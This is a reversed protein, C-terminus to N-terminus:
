HLDLGPRLPPLEPDWLGPFQPSFHCLTLLPKGVTFVMWTSYMECNLLNFISDANQSIAGSNAGADKNNNQQHFLPTPHWAAHYFLIHLVYEATRNRTCQHDLTRQKGYSTSIDWFSTAPGSILSELKLSVRIWLSNCYTCEVSTPLFVVCRTSTQLNSTVSILSKWLTCATFFCVTSLLKGVIFIISWHIERIHSTSKGGPNSYLPHSMVLLQVAKMFFLTFGSINSIHLVM